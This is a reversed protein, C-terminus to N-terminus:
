EATHPAAAPAAAEYAAPIYLRAPMTVHKKLAYLDELVYCTLNPVLTYMLFVFGRLMSVQSPMAIM